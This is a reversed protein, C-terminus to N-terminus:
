QTDGVNIKVFADLPSAGIGLVGSDGGLTFHGAVVEMELVKGLHENKVKPPKLVRTALKIKGAPKGGTLLAFEKDVNILDGM